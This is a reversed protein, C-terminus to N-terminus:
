APGICQARLEVMMVEIRNSRGLYQSSDGKYDDWKNEDIIANMIEDLEDQSIRSDVKFTHFLRSGCCSPYYDLSFQLLSSQLGQLGSRSRTARQKDTKLHVGFPYM